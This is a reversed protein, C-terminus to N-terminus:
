DHNRPTPSPKLGNHGYVRALGYATIVRPIARHEVVSRPDLHFAQPTVEDPEAYRLACGHEDVTDVALFRLTQSCYMITGVEPQIGNLRLTM